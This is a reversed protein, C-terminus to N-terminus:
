FACIKLNQWNFKLLKFTQWCLCKFSFHKTSLSMFCLQAVTCWMVLSRCKTLLSFLSIGACDREGEIKKGTKKKHFKCLIIMQCCAFLWCTTIRTQSNCQACNYCFYYIPLLSLENSPLFWYCFLNKLKSGQEPKYFQEVYINPFRIWPWTNFEM